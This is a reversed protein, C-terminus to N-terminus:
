ALRTLVAKPHKSWKVTIITLMDGETGDSRAKQFATLISQRHAEPM